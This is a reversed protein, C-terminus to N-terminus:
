VCITIPSLSSGCICWLKRYSIKYLCKYIMQKYIGHSFVLLTFISYAYQSRICKTSKKACMFMYACFDWVRRGVYSITLQYLLMDNWRSKFGASNRHNKKVNACWLIIWGTKYFGVVSNNKRDCASKRANHCKTWMLSELFRSLPM